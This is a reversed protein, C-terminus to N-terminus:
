DIPPPAAGTELVGDIQDGCKGIRMRSLLVDQAVRFSVRALISYPQHACQVRGSGSPCSHSERKRSIALPSVTWAHYQFVGFKATERSPRVRSKANPLVRDRRGNRTPSRPRM